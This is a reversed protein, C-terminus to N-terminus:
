KASPHQGARLFAILTLVILGTNEAVKKWGIKSADPDTSMCGCSIDLGRALSIIVTITFVALLGLIWISAGRRLRPALILAAGCVVELWPLFLASLNVLLNNPLLQYQFVNKAFGSPDIIKVYGAYIFVGGVILRVAHPWLITLAERM